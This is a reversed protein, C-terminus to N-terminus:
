PPPLVVSLSHTQYEGAHRGASVASKNERGIISDAHALVGRMRDHRLAVLRWIRKIVERRRRECRPRKTFPEFIPQMSAPLVIIAPLGCTGFTM